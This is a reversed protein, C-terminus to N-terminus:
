SNKIPLVIEVRTWSGEESSYIINGNHAEIIEISLSIGLGTGTKKTTYFPEKIKEINEKSIGLGNDEIFIHIKNNILETNLEIYSDGRTEIAEISNKIINIFVQKLREYDGDIYVEEDEIHSIYNIKKSELLPACEEEVDELLLNIDLIDKNIKLHNCDLFDQLLLLTRNIESSIIPIYKRSHNLDNINFMDLYGKCVAIPNKIEHTIKFLSTRIEKEKQLEKLTMGLKVIKKGKKLLFIVLINLSVYFLVNMIIQLIDVNTLIMLILTIISKLFVFSVLFLRDSGEKNFIKYYIFYYLPYELLVIGAFNSYFKFYYIIICFSLILISLNRRYLYAILIPVNFILLSLEFNSFGGFRSVLYFSSLLCFDLIINQAEKEFAKNYAIYFLYLILPFLIYITNLIFNEVFGMIEGREVIIYWKQM